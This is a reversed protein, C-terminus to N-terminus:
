RNQRSVLLKYDGYQIAGLGGYYNHIVEKRPSAIDYQLTPWQDVGYYDIDTPLKEGTTCIFCLM